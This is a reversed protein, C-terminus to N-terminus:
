SERRPNSSNLQAVHLRKLYGITEIEDAEILGAM